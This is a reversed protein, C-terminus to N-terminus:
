KQVENEMGYEKRRPFSTLICLRCIMTHDTSHERAMLKAFIKVFCFLAEWILTFTLTSAKLSLTFVKSKNFPMM